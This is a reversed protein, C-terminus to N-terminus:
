LTRTIHEVRFCEITDGARIDEYNEFAMGCEQGVPVENVEDKFRKLTKLKGEHIVVNDRVLRVGAGREVKGEVVRCGAVKGVKTINFVELIEANGLFTERREPSLLGSMAAKVDDVLDYIINYYRIEIGARESATRAQANARVNFGIIAANSAEALSIDSETIAGAGSHVIRARVEDTGLKDLSAIIAEVSGQVDAKIVLPFEKMGSTQLQSMMQELSGRQGTQRAVAKDRALRQRYESIERARSENEVVAFRDGASPTGSLGLIEVPMAPGAEKVHEGKDNVLARVRGWQDGAVIIQGPKLTGKQVLVTAVAGRGRDLEAEIVTGEATRNPDAKLDLIEAQLLIAELLKDLNLKNKASVEVDLVEGGMSEVFVEHQLLQQRVKEPNAEHKDIKNIAVVIPVGAAKAHNISEITQPMVSDDAAVVLVAIDTAQAGRARMATFAAHGPTDIFTIKQGNKEVQYAGIHQTIGGAEGAVVNAQRIADLLSTKGHDVHGMITVVPARPKAESTEDRDSLVAEELENERRLVVKHGMEEAVLQATEQDIVQNITAMAGMKMMVKIVEVGKVAMKNALEAVTITEGIVVDRNVVAAPKNFGHKMANPMAMKGRKGKRARPDRSNRDNRDDERRGVKKPAKAAAATRRSTEEKRDLEDEAAQAHKNTTLHYDSSEKARAAEEEAWRAANQEAMIRAEEAKKAALEEAKQLATQEQQRKLEEAERKAMKEAEQQATSGAAKAPQQAQRAKQQAEIRAKEEAERRAQEAERRAKEEADLRAKEEAERRAKEEAELRATEEAEAQRQEDELASRRVYTRSKRVEVQVEKNKGGTGQVSLTSKTKRQLTMRAPATVEDGGHQKKLHALLTQKESESVMDDAKSKVIGADVFQQLLRDVPTDIDTALQKVSVEAM